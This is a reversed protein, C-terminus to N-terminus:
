KKEKKRLILELRALSNWAIHSAHLLGSDDTIPGEIEEALIHRGLADTYREIGDKVDQWGKWTYKTAGFESVKAVENIARPFYQLVGKVIKPKNADLKAGPEHEKVGNPDSEM